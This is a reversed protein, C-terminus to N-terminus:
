LSHATRDNSPRTSAVNGAAVVDGRQNPSQARNRSGIPELTNEVRQALTERGGPTMGGAMRHLTIPEM